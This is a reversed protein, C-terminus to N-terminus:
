ETLQAKFWYAQEKGAADRFTMTGELIAGRVVGSWKMREGKPNGHEAEFRVAEGDATATYPTAAFGWPHCQLPDFQGDAFVFTEPDGQEKGQEGTEGAYTRGDLSARGPSAPSAASAPAAAALALLLCGAAATTPRRTM